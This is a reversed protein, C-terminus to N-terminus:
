RSGVATQFPDTVPVPPGAAAPHAAPPVVPAARAEGSGIPRVGRLRGTPQPRDLAVPTPSQAITLNGATDRVELRLYFREPVHRQLRWFYQGTNELRAAITSWPGNPVSSYFLSIPKPELNDDGATWRIVLHDVLNGRGREIPQLQATPGKLDVRVELEPPDGSRPPSASAGNAGDVLIRFGYIGGGPVTVRVPSRNDYDVCYSEWTQGQNSTGWLEVKAVGWPGVSDLDYEIDFTRAGVMRMAQDIQGVPLSSKGIWGQAEEGPVLGSGHRPTQPPIAGGSGAGGSGAQRNAQGSAVLQAPTRRAPQFAPWDLASRGRSAGAAPAYPTGTPPTETTAARGSAGRDLARTDTMTTDHTQNIWQSGSAHLRPGDPPIETTAHTVHGARDAISARFKVSDGGWHRTAEPAAPLRVRGMLRDTQQVDHRGLPVDVWAQGGTQSQIVLGTPQLNRDTAEYRLVIAGDVDFSGAISLVPQVTDVVVHLQPQIPGTQLLQGRRDYLRLAFWFDGDTSAYYRFGKVNFEAKGLSKWDTAGDRSVLLEVKNLQGELNGHPQVQYPILFVREHWYTAAPSSTVPPSGGWSGTQGSLEVTVCLVWCAASMMVVVLRGASSITLSGRFLFNM